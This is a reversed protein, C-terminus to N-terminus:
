LDAESMLSIAQRALFNPYWEYLTKVVHLSEPFNYWIIVKKLSSWVQLPCCQKVNLLNYNLKASHDKSTFAVFYIDIKKWEVYYHRYM